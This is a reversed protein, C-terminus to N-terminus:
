RGTFASGSIRLPFEKKALELHRLVKMLKKRTGAAPGKPALADTHKKLRRAVQNIAVELQKAVDDSFVEDLQQQQSSSSTREPQRSRKISERALRRFTDLFGEAM